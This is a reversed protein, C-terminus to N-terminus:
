WLQGTGTPDTWLRDSLSRELLMRLNLIQYSLNVQDSLLDNASLGYKPQFSPAALMEPLGPSAPTIAAEEV